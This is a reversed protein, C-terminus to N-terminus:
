PAPEFVVRLPDALIRARVRDGIRVAEPDPVIAESLMRGGEDLDVLVIARPPSPPRAYQVTVAHVAGLGSVAVWPGLPAGTGPARLRPPFVCAGTAPDRQLMLRGAALHARYVAEPAPDM